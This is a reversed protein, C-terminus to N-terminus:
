YLLLVAFFDLKKVVHLFQFFIWSSLTATSSISKLYLMDTKDKTQM